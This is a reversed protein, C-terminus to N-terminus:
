AVESITIVITYDKLATHFDDNEAKTDLIVNALELCDVIQQATITAEKTTNPQGDEDTDNLVISNGGDKVAIPVVDQSTHPDTYKLGDKASLTITAIMKIGNDKTTQDAGPNATFNIKIDGTGVLVAKYKIDTYTGDSNLTDNAIDDVLFAFNNEPTATITGKIGNTVVQAMNIERSVVVSATTGQSYNWAAYVGGITVCLVLAILVSLKKM